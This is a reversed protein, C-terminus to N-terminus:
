RHQYSTIFDARLLLWSNEGQIRDAIPRSVFPIGREALEIQLCEHYVAELFGPGLQNYVEFCAGMIAYSEDKLIM